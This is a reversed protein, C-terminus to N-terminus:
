LEAHIFLGSIQCIFYSHANFAHICIRLYSVIVHLMPWKVTWHLVLLLYLSHSLSFIRLWVTPNILDLMLASYMSLYGNPIKVIFDVVFECHPISKNYGHLTLAITGSIIRFCLIRHRVSLSVKEKKKQIHACWYRKWHGITLPNKHSYFYLTTSWTVQHSSLNCNFAEHQELLLFLSPRCCSKWMSMSSCVFNVFNWINLWSISKGHVWISRINYTTVDINNNM